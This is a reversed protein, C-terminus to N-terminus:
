TPRGGKQCGPACRAITRGRQGPSWAHRTVGVSLSLSPPMLRRGVGGSCRKLINGGPVYNLHFVNTHSALGLKRVPRYFRSRAGWLFTLTERLASRPFFTSVQGWLGAAPCSRASCQVARGVNGGLDMIMQAM